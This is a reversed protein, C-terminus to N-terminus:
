PKTVYDVAGLTLGQAEDKSEGKGTLFIVPIAATTPNEKLAKCVEFGNMGPMEVDLLILDPQPDAVAAMLAAAGSEATKVEYDAALARSMLVLLEHADDVALILPKKVAPM